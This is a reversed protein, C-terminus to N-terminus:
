PTGYLFTTVVAPAAAGGQFSCGAYPGTTTCADSCLGAYSMGCPSRDSGAVGDWQACERNPLDGQTDDAAQDVGNCSYAAFSGLDVFVNGWFAGEEVQYSAREAATTVLGTAAGRDSIAVSTGTLNVRSIMCASVWAAESASLPNTTWGPAVGMAGVSTYDVGDVTFAVSQTADLACGVAYALVRRADSDSGMAAAGASDLVGTVLQSNTLVSPTLGNVALKPVNTVISGDPGSQEICGTFALAGILLM